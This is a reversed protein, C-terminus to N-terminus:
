LCGFSNQQYLVVGGGNLHHGRKDRSGVVRGEGVVIYVVGNKDVRPPPGRHYTNHHFFGRKKGVVVVRVVEYKYIIDAPIM